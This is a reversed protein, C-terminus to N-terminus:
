AASAKAPPAGRARRLSGGVVIGASILVLNKVVFEGEVTLLLPNGGQFAVHPLLVLVAFTGLMQLWLLALATRLLVGGLLLLGVVIEYVGLAPLVVSAPAWPITAAVLDVVPSRGVLKLAGFWVFVLGLTVRALTPGHERMLATARRDFRDLTPHRAIWRPPAQTSAM